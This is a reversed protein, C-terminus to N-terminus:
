CSQLILVFGQYVQDITEIIFMYPAIDDRALPGNKFVDNVQLCVLM